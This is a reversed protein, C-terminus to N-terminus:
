KGSAGRNTGSTIRVGSYGTKTATTYRSKPTWWSGTASMWVPSNTSMQRTTYAVARRTAESGIASPAAASVAAKAGMGYKAASTIVSTHVVNKNVTDIHIAIRARCSGVTPANVRSPNMSASAVSLRGANTSNGTASAAIPTTSKGITATRGRGESRCQAIMSTTNATVM